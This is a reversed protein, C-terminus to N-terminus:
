YIHTLNLNIMYKKELVEESNDYLKPYKPLCDIKFEEVMDYLLNTNDIAQLYIDPSFLNQKDYAKILEQYSKFTLDWGDENDFHINKAKQLVIRAEALEQNLSHTDTGTILKIGYQQSLEYVYQNRIKQEQVNHHQIELFCRDKNKALYEIYKNKLNENESKLIGSLCASTIIINNSLTCFEDISIRPVYYFHGDNRNFSKSILKNLEIFGNYNKAILICHYNDRIKEQLTATIYCEIAHLYKLGADEILKKKGYWNLFSGHESIALAKMGLEKAKQVYM